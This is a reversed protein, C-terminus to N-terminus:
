HKYIRCIRSNMMQHFVILEVIKMQYVNEIWAQIVRKGIKTNLKKIKSIDDKDTVEGLMTEKIESYQM